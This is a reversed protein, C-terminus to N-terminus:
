KVWPLELFFRLRGLLFQFRPRVLGPRILAAGRVLTDMGYGYVFWAADRWSRNALCERHIVHANRMGTYGLMYTNPRGAPEVLHLIRAKGQVYVKGHRAMRLGFDLDEGMSHGGFGENFGIQRALDTRWMMGCGSLWDGEVLKETPALFRWPTAVGSRAYRGPRLNPVIGFLRRIRWLM